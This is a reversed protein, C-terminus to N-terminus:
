SGCGAVERAMILVDIKRGDVLVAGRRRGEHRFGLREYLRIAGPNNEFVQLQLRSIGASPAWTILAGLLGSGVAKGRQERAVSMGFEGGHAAQAKREAHFDLLGIIESGLAAVFIMSGSAERASRIFEREEAVSPPAPRRYLTPLREAVLRAMYRHMAEADGEVAQRIQFWTGSAPQEGITGFPKTQHLDIPPVEAWSAVDVARKAELQNVVELRIGDPDSFFTAYYDDYYEPYLRPESAPIGHRGLGAAVGDVAARDPVRLCLHHLGPSYPDHERSRDRAPRITVQVSRSQNFYHAHFEGGALPRAVKRFGLISMVRDYFHQSRDMDRVTIYVHDVGLVEVGTL